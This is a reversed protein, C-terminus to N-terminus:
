SRPLTIRITHQRGPELRVEKRYPAYGPREVELIFASGGGPHILRFWGRDDTMMSGVELGDETFLRVMAEGLGGPRDEGVVTGSLGNIWRTAGTPLPPAEARPRRALAAAFRTAVGPRLSVVAEAATDPLTYAPHSVLVEYVGEPLGTMRFAGDPGTTTERGLAPLEVVAGAVGRGQGDGAGAATLVGHLTAGVAEALVRGDATRVERVEAGQEYLATLDLRGRSQRAAYPMRIYWRRVIWVGTALREFEVRGGLGSWDGGHRFPLNRYSFDLRRLEATSRDIWLTGEIDPLSRGAVPEFALGVLGPERPSEAVRFCHSDLFEDSLLVDADPAFFDWTDDEAPQIYGRAHLEAAPISRYPSGYQMLGRPVESQRIVRLTHADLQRTHEVLLYRVLRRDRSWRTVELAKRAEDWLRAMGPGSGPRPECRQTTEVQIADLTIAQVAVEIDRRVTEGRPLELTETETSAYGILEAVLRYRGPGPARLAYRGDPGSLVGGHRAGEETVLVIFAGELPRGGNAESVTGVVTQAAAPLAALMEAGALALTLVLTPTALPVRGPRRM